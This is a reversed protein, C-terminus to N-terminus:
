LLGNEKLKQVLTNRQNLMSEQHPYSSWRKNLNLTNRFEEYYPIFTGCLIICGICLIAYPTSLTILIILSLIIYWLPVIILGTLIKVMTTYSKYLKLKEFILNPIKWQFHFLLAILYIPYGMIVMLQSAHHKKNNISLTSDKLQANGLINFYDYLMEWIIEFRTHNSTRMHRIKPITEKEWDLQEEFGQYTGNSYAMMRIWELCQAEIEDETHITMEELQQRIKQMVKESTANKDKRYDIGFDDIRIPEGVRVIIESQFATPDSYNTGIPQIILGSKFKQSKAATLAIRAIGDKLPRIRKYSYSTAEPGMFITGKNALVKSSIKITALNNVKEGPAVDKARKVPISFLLKSMIFHTVPHKFLGYNALFHIWGPLIGAMLVPDVMTNPHNPSIITPVGKPIRDKDLITIRKFYIRFVTKALTNLLVYVIKQLWSM